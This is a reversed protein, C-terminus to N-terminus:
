KGRKDSTADSWQDQDWVAGDWQKNQSRDVRSPAESHSDPKVGANPAAEGADTHKTM